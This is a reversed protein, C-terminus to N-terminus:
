IYNAASSDNSNNYNKRRINQKQSILENARREYKNNFGFNKILERIKNKNIYPLNLTNNLKKKQKTKIKKSSSPSNFRKKINIETNSKNIYYAKLNQNNKIKKTAKRNKNFLSNVLNSNSSTELFINNRKFILDNENISFISANSENKSNNINNKSLPSKVEKINKPIIKNFSNNYETLTRKNKYVMKTKSYIKPIPEEHLIHNKNKSLKHKSNNNKTNSSWTNLYNTSINQRKVPSIKKNNQERNIKNYFMKKIIYKPIINDYETKVFYNYNNLCSNNRLNNINIINLKPKTKQTKLKKIDKRSLNDIKNVSIKKINNNYDDNNISSNIINMLQGFKKSYISNNKGKMKNVFIFKKNNM